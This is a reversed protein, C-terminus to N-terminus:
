CSMNCVPRPSCIHGSLELLGGGVRCLAAGGSARLLSGCPVTPRKKAGGKLPTCLLQTDGVWPFGHLIVLNQRKHNTSMEGSANSRRSPIMTIALRTNRMKVIAGYWNHNPPQLTAYSLSLGCHGTLTWSHLLSGWGRPGEQALRSLTQVMSRRRSATWHMGSEERYAFKLISSPMRWFPVQAWCDRKLEERPHLPPCVSGKGLFAVWGPAAPHHEPVQRRGGKQLSQGM